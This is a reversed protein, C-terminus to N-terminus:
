RRAGPENLYIVGGKMVLVPHETVSIDYLPDGPVAVLDAFKGVAVTGVRDQWGMIEANLKTASVLVSMPTAGLAVRWRFERANQGHPVVPADTAFGIPIGAALARKFGAEMIPRIKRSRELESAPIVASDGQELMAINVGITPVYYTRNNGAKLLAIAEDDLASGHDVTRVGARIAAKIGEAGHAHAGVFRGWRTAETVAAQIEEDSYQQAGPPIGKSLVAGTALIKIFDAGNKFNTRVQKTIEVPGDALNHVIPVQVYPSFQLADGAGGTSSVYAGAVMMRPGPVVGADIAKRLAVDVYPWNPGMDRVTTFGARLTILAHKAGWLADDAPTTKLLGEEWHVDERTTLHTHLDIWGPTLTANGLDVVRAGAPVDLRAGVAAIRDGEVRVMAPAMVPGGNGDILRAAKLITVEVTARKAQAIAPRALGAGLALAATSAAICRSTVRALHSGFGARPERPPTAVTTPRIM